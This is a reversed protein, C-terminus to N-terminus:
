DGCRPTLTTPIMWTGADDTEPSSMSFSSSYASVPWDTSPPQAESQSPTPSSGSGIGAVFLCVCVFLFLIPSFFPAFSFFFICLWCLCCARQFPSLTSHYHAYLANFTPFNVSFHFPLLSDPPLLESLKLPCFYLCIICEEM